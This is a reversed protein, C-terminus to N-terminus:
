LWQPVPPPLQVVQLLVLASLQEELPLQRHPVPLVQPLPLMQLPPEHM